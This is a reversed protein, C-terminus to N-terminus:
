DEASVRDQEARMQEYGAQEAQLRAPAALTDLHSTWISTAILAAIAGGALGSAITEAVMALLAPIRIWLAYLVILPPLAAPVLYALGRERAYLDASVFSAYCALPVLVLAGIVAWIPMNGNKFAVLLLGVLAIWLATGFLALFADTIANGAADSRGADHLGPLYAIYLLGALVALLVAGVPSASSPKEGQMAQDETVRPWRTRSSVTSTGTPCTGTPTTVM